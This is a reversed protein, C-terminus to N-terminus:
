GAPRLRTSGTARYKVGSASNANRCAEDIPERNRLHRQYASRTGCPALPRPAAAKRPAARGQEQLTLAWRQAGTLGAFIGTRYTKPVKKERVLVTTLCEERVPCSSCIGMAAARSGDDFFVDTDVSRCAAKLEWERSTKM